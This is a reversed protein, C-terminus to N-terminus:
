LFLFGRKGRLDKTGITTVGRRVRQETKKEMRKLFLLFVIISMNKGRTVAPLHICPLLNLNIITCRSRLTETRPAFRM